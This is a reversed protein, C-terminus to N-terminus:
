TLLWEIGYFQVVMFAIRLWQLKNIYSKVVLEDFRLEEILQSEPTNDILGDLKVIKLTILAIGIAALTSFVLMQYGYKVSDVYISLISTTLVFGHGLFYFWNKRM